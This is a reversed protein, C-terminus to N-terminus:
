EEWEEKPVSLITDSTFTTTAERSRNDSVDWKSGLWRSLATAVEELIEEATAVEDEPSDEVLSFGIRIHYDEPQAVTIANLSAPANGRAIKSVTARIAAINSSYM